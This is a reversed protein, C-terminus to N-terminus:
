RGPLFRKLLVAPQPETWAFGLKGLTQLTKDCQPLPKAKGAARKEQLWVDMFAAAAGPEMRSLAGPLVREFQEANQRLPHLELATLIDSLPVPYPNYIHYVGPPAAALVTIARACEDVATLEVPMDFLQAPLGPLAAIARVCLCFANSHPDQQFVGDSARGVLRGIRAVRVDLGYKAADRVRKEAQLKAGVYINGGWDQGIDLDQETFPVDAASGPLTNGCVSMTSCHILRAGASQCLAIVNETGLVNAATIEEAPGYHRVDAAAHFVTKLRPLLADLADQAAGMAPKTVDGQVEIINQRVSQTWVSGFYGSLVEQLRGEGRVLCYIGGAGGDILAKVIHAGLFGTAGTVLVADRITQPGESSHENIGAEMAALLEAQVTVTPHAYFASIPMEWGNEYYRSLITIAALSAGGQEFLSVDRVVPVGLVDEWIAAIRDELGEADATAAQAKPEPSDGYLPPPLNESGPGQSLALRDTKGTATRPLASLATIRTPIMYSPLVAALRERMLGADISGGQAPVCYGTLEMTGDPMRGAVVAAEACLGTDLMAGEVEEPEVRQGNLKIQRDRRGTYILEGSALMRATDGTKYMREGPLLPDDVFARATLEPEACYGKALCEGGLYLEGEALPPVRRMDDDLLYERCNALPRGIVPPGGPLLRAGTAYVAAEAPGYLNYIAAKTHKGLAGLLQPTVAEGAMIVLQVGGIAACFQANALCSIMRSPTLQFASVKEGAILQALKWPLLMEEEDALVVTRGMALASLSETMFTDFVVGTACLVSGQACEFVTELNATLNAIARHTIMVGKPRGTSGSTFLVHILSSTPTDVPTYAADKASGMVIREAGAAAGSGDCYILRAGSATLMHNVREPPFDPSIPVYACGAMLIGLMATFLKPTRKFCLGIRDGPEAGAQQLEAAASRAGEILQAYTVDEGHFRLAAADPQMLATEEVRRHICEDIYPMRMRNPREMLALRDRADLPMLAGLAANKDQMLLKVAACFMRLILKATDADYLSAAYELRLSYGRGGDQATELSLPLKATHTEVPYIRTNVGCLEYEEPQAPRMSLMARYLATDGDVTRGSYEAVADPSVSQNDLLSLVDGRVRALYESVTLGNDPYLDLPLPHIFAGAVKWLESSARGSVPTGITLAPKGALKGIVIGFAAAFLMFPTIDGARCYEEAANSLEAGLEQTIVEGRLDSQKAAPRDAPVSAAEPLRPAKQKWYETVAGDTERGAEAYAYDRYRVAPTDPAEGRYIACLRRMILPTSVGDSVSHHVDVLLRWDGSAADNYLAARMLPPKELDFPRVFAARANEANDAALTELAFPADDDITQMLKGDVLRFSTRLAEESRILATFASELRKIDPAKSGLPLEGPMNYAIGTPDLRSAVYLSRQAATLPYGTLEPARAIRPPGPEAAEGTLMECIRRASRLAYFETLRLSRHFREEIDCILATAGLSDGGSAFFDDTVGFSKDNLVARMMDLLEQEMGTRAPGGGTEPEPDPLAIVDTKGSRTRPMADLRVLRSPTMYGPLYEALYSLLEVEGANCGENLVYYGAIYKKEGQAVLKVAADLVASHACLRAAIEAPEIRLGRLKLQGDKRGGIRIEGESTWCASDGTRYIREGPEFPSTFFSKENLEPAGHYGRGVCKGGIYLEGFVGVPLPQMHADLVYLRCNRMPRGITVAAAGDMRATAVAVTTESPGYQNYLRAHTLDHLRQILEGPLAEGGIIISDMSRLASAFSKERLYAQIRSPTAAFCGVGYNVILRALARPDEVEEAGPLVVTRANLLAAASELMFVDFGTNCLSLVAGHGYYPAMGAAFNVVNGVSIEVGKPKGTSGSTYVIYCLEDAAQTRPRAIRESKLADAYQLVPADCPADSIILEAGSDDIMEARRGAPLSPSLIVWANGGYACAMMSAYLAASRDLALGIVHGGGPCAAEIAAGILEARRVLEAYTVRTGDEICAVRSPHAGAASCFSGYVDLPSVIAATDNFKFLVNDLEDLGMLPLQWIPRDPERLAAHLIRMLYSHLKEIEEAGFLQVLHDYDVTFRGDSGASLHIILPEAQYSSYHWRGSFSVRADPSVSLGTSQFSLAVNYLVGEGRAERAIAAIESYPLRQARLLDYWQGNLRSVYENFTWNEDLDSIFPLTSVFMGTTARETADSRNHVPVGVCIRSAGGIRRLYICLAMCFPAFPAVRESACFDALAHDMVQTLKFTSRRGVPSLSATGCPKVACPEAAGSLQEKWYGRARDSARSAIYERENYVHDRYSPLEELAPEGGGLLDLYAKAIRNALAAQTWGDSIMHHLKTLICAERERVRCLAFEYLPADILPMPRHAAADEFLTLGERSTMSFDYVPFREFAFPAHYQVPTGGRITLRTRLSPDSQVVANLARQMLETDVRGSINITCCINNVPLGPYAQEIHYINLQSLSLPFVADGKACPADTGSRDEDNRAAINPMTLDFEGM